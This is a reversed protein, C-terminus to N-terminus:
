VLKKIIKGPVGVVLSYDPINKTVVSGAGIVCWEGITINPIITANAGIHSGEGVRVNGCLTASPSIHAFDDVFCEHEIIANTNIICHKGIVTDRQITSNHFIASGEGIKVSTDILASIHKAISFKHLIKKSITKRIKNDGISILLKLEIKYYALYSGIVDYTNLNNVMLNDDFISDVKISNSEYISCIVKAHGSAGYLLVSDQKM